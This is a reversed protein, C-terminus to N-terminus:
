LTAKGQLHLKRKQALADISYLALGLWVFMFTTLKGESFPEGLIQTAIVVMLSPGIYQLFGVTSLNLRRAAITFLLLPVLTIPGALILLSNLEWGNHLLNSTPSTSWLLYILAVPLMYLTEIALGTLSEVPARKRALGYLAFSCALFLAIVPVRGFQWLEHVIGMAALTVAMWQLRRLREGLFLVGLVINILPNIYYGLSSELLHGNNIAWIFVLWNSGILATTLALTRMKKGNRLTRVLDPLKGLLLMILLALGLSWISRHALIEAAPIGQLQNFYIPALGWILFAAVGALLGTTASDNNRM